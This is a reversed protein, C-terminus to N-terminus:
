DSFSNRCILISSGFLASNGVGSESDAAGAPWLDTGPHGPNRHVLTQLDRGSLQQIQQQIEDARVLMSPQTTRNEGSQSM